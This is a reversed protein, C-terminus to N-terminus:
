SYQDAHTMKRQRAAPLARRFKPDISKIMIMKYPTQQLPGTKTAGWPACRKMLRSRWISQQRSDLPPNAAIGIAWYDRIASRGRLVGSPDMKREM